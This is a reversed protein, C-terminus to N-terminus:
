GCWNRLKLLRGWRTPCRCRTGAPMSCAVLSGLPDARPLRGSPSVTRCSRAIRYLIRIKFPVPVFGREAPDSDRLM